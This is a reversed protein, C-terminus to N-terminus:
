GPQGQQAPRLAAEGAGIRHPGRKERFGRAIGRMEAPPRPLGSRTSYDYHPRLRHRNRKLARATCVDLAAVGGVALIAAAAKANRASALTAIDLADGAVRGMIWPTRDRAMLIGAGQAIERVGYLRLLGERGQMGTARALRRTMFLEALGLGLSFWGLARALADPAHGRSTDPSALYRTTMAQAGGQHM